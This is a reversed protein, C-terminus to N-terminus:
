FFRVPVGLGELFAHCEGMHTTKVGTIGKRLVPKKIRRVANTGIVSPQQADACRELMGQYGLGTYVHEDPANAIAIGQHEFFRCTCLAGM